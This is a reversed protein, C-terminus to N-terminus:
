RTTERRNRRMMALGAVALFALTAPEPTVRINDIVGGGALRFCVQGGSYTSDNASMLEQGDQLLRLLSGNRELRLHHTEGAHITNPTEALHDWGPHEFMEAYPNDSELPNVMARYGREPTDLHLQDVAANVWIDFDGWSGTYIVFDVDIAVNDSRVDNLALVSHDETVAHFANSSDNLGSGISWNGYTTIGNAVGDEFDEEFLVAAHAMGAFVGVLAVALGHRSM